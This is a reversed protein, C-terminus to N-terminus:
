LAEHSRDCSHELVGGRTPNAVVGTRKHRADGSAGDEVFVIQSMARATCSRSARSKAEHQGQFVLNDVVEADFNEHRTSTRSSPRYRYSFSYLHSEWEHNRMTILFHQLRHEWLCEGFVVDPITVSTEAINTALIIKRVSSGSPALRFARRQDASSLTSHMPIIDFSERRGFVRSSELREALTKIEGFGPLFVLVSGRKLNAGSPVELIKWADTPELLLVKLTDEILDYNVISENVREM